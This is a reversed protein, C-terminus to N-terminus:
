GSRRSRWAQFGSGAGHGFGQGRDASRCPPVETGARHPSPPAPYLLRARFVDLLYYSEGQILWTTCVSYDNLEGAKSATDWSQVIQNHHVRAPATQYRQFWEWRMLEGEIPVPEQQYHAAFHYSGMSRKIEELIHLPERQPHLLEGAKRHYFRGPGVPIAQDFEAIAPLNLHVWPEGTALVHGVLDDLHLRQMILTIVDTQKDDLRSYVTNDFWESTSARRTDSMAEDPKM